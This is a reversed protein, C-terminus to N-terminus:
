RPVDGSFISHHRDKLVLVAQSNGNVIWRVLRRKVAQSVQEMGIDIQLDSGFRVDFARQALIIRIPTSPVHVGRQGVRDLFERLLMDLNLAIAPIVTPRDFGIRRQDFQHIREDDLGELHAGRVNMELWQCFSKTDTVPDVSHEMLDLRWGLSELSRDDAPELNLRVHRNRLMPNRLIATDLSLDPAFQDIKTNRAQRSIM